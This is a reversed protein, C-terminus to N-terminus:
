EAEDLRRLSKRLQFLYRLPVQTSGYEIDGAAGAYADLERALMLLDDIAKLKSIVNM